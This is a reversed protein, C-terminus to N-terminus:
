QIDMNRKGNNFKSYIDFQIGFLIIMLLRDAVDQWMEFSFRQTSLYRVQRLTYKM